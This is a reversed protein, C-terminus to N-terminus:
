VGSNTACAPAGASLALVAVLVLVGGRAISMACRGPPGDPVAPGAVAGARDRAVVGVQRALSEARSGRRHWLGLSLLLGPRLAAPWVNPLRGREAPLVDARGSLAPDRRDAAQAGRPRADADAARGDRHAPPRQRRCQQAHGQ